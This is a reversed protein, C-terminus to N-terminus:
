CDTWRTKMAINSPMSSAPTATPAVGGKTVLIAARQVMSSAACGCRMSCTASHTVAQPIDGVNSLRPASSPDRMMKAILPCPTSEAREFTVRKHPNENGREKVCQECWPQPPLQTLEHVEKETNSSDRPDAMPNAADRRRGKPGAEREADIAAQSRGDRM